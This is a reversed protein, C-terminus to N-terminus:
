RHEGQMINRLGSLRRPSALHLVKYPQETTAEVSSLFGEGFQTRSAHQASALECRKTTLDLRYRHCCWNLMQEQLM